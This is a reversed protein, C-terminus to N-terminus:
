WETTYRSLIFVPQYCNRTVTGNWLEIGGKGNSLPHMPNVLCDYAIFAKLSRVCELSPMVKSWEFFIDTFRYYGHVTKTAM